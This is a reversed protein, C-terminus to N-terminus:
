AEAESDPGTIPCRLLRGPGITTLAPSEMRCDNTALPCRPAFRCGTEPIGGRHATGPEARLLARTYPHLPAKFLTRTAAQEVIEGAYVVAVRDVMDAVMDLDHSILLLALERRDCIRRILELVLDQAMVDLGTTPEDAILLRPDGALALAVMVRQVQGGSLQHAYAPWIQDPQDFGVDQLLRLGAARAERVRISRHCQVTETLQYGVSLVPNLASAPEQFALGIVGGRIHRLQTPDATDLDIGGVSVTGALRRGPEPVLGVAALAALSKGSGSEGVLGVREGPDVTLDLHDLAHHWGIKQRAPFGVTVAELQLLPRGADATM